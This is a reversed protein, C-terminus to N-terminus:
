PRDTMRGWSMERGLLADLESNLPAFYANLTARMSADMDSRVPRSASSGYSHNVFASPHWTSVDLFDLVVDFSSAPNAYLDESKIVLVQDREFWDFWLQLQEAYRGRELYSFRLFEAPVLAGDDAILERAEGIRAEEEEIAAEFSLTEYGLRTMHQHHSFARDVPNRLLVIIKARPVLQAARRAARSDLLYDPTAEFSILPGRGVIRHVPLRAAVPFHARYWREGRGYFRSFYETEKRLSPVIDPHGGLYRYLSSTGARQAGIILFDPLVRFGATPSRLRLRTRAIKRRSRAPIVSRLSDVVRTRIRPSNSM